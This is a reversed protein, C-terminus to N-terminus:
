NINCRSEVKKQVCDQEWSKKLNFLKSIFTDRDIGCCFEATHGQSANLLQWTFLSENTLGYYSGKEAYYNTNDIIMLCHVEAGTARIAGVDNVKLKFDLPWLCKGTGITCNVCFDNKEQLTYTRGDCYESWGISELVVSGKSLKENIFLLIDASISIIIFLAVGLIIMRKHRNYFDLLKKM